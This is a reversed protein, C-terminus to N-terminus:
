DPFATALGRDKAPLLRLVLNREREATLLEDPIHRLALDNAPSQSDTGQTPDFRRLPNLDLRDRTM